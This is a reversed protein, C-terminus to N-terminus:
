PGTHRLVSHEPAVGARSNTDAFCVVGFAHVHSGWVQAALGSAPWQGALEQGTEGCSQSVGRESPRGGYARKSCQTTETLCRINSAVMEQMLASSM